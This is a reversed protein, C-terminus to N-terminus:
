SGPRAGTTRTSASRRGASRARASGGHASGSFRRRSATSSPRGDVEFYGANLAALAGNAEAISRVESRAPSRGEALAVRVRVEDLSLELAYVAIEGPPDLLGRDHLVHLTVGRALEEGPAAELRLSFLLACLLHVAGFARLRM